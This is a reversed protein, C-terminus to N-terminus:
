RKPSREDSAGKQFQPKYETEASIEKKWRRRFLLVTGYVLLYLLLFAIFVVFSSSESRSGFAPLYLFCFFGGVTCVAHILFKVFASIKATRDIYNAVSFLFSFPFILLFNLPSVARSLSESVVLLLLCLFVVIASYTVCASAFIRKLASNRSPVSSM